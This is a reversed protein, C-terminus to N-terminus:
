RCTHIYTHVDCTHMEWLPWFLVQSKRSTFNHMHVLEQTSTPGYGPDKTIDALARLWQATM